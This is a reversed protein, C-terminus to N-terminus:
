TLANLKTSCVSYSHSLESMSRFSALFVGVGLRDVSVSTPRVELLLSQLLWILIHIEKNM